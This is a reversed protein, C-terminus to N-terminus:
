RLGLCTGFGFPVGDFYVIKAAGDGYMYYLPPVDCYDNDCLHGAVANVTRKGDDCEWHGMGCYRWKGGYKEELQKVKSKVRRKKNM